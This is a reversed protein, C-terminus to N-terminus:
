ATLLPPASMRSTASARAVLSCALEVRRAPRERNEMEECLIDVATAGIERMPIHVSTLPPSHFVSGPLDDMGIVSADGPVDYGMRSLQSMAGSALSDAAALIATFDLGREAIRREIAAGALDPLWDEVSVVLDAVADGGLDAMADSWGERRREITRRGPRTLFLIRDHGLRRLFQTAMAAAARNCPAVSSLRMRPDDGNVLVIPKTLGRVSELMEEDDLTLFLLGAVRDDALAEAVIERESSVDAVPRTSVQYGLADARERLGELVHATFQNRSYDLMAAGSAAVIITDGTRFRPIPYGLERAAALVAERQEPRVGKDSSLARSASSVSVGCRAAVDSLRVKRAM